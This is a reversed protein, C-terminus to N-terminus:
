YRRPGGGGGRRNDDRRGGSRNGSGFGGGFGGGRPRDEPPRAINVKLERNDVSKGNFMRIANEADAQTAMTVFGFGKSRGSDRDKIVVVESVTGAQAFMERLRDENTDYSLNGVYLKSDM